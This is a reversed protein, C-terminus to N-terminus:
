SLGRKGDHVHLEVNKLSLGRMTACYDEENLPCLSPLLGTVKLGADEAFRYGDGTSGTSPYSEGGTAIIVRDSVCKEKETKQFHSGAASSDEILIGTVRANLRVKVHCDTMKKKLM